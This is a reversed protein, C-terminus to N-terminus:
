MARLRRDTDTDVHSGIHSLVARIAAASPGLDRTLKDEYRKHFQLVYGYAPGLDDFGRRELHVRLQEISPKNQNRGSCPQRRRKPM